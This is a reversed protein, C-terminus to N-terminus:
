GAVCIKPINCMKWKRQGTMIQVPSPQRSIRMKESKEVNIEMGCWRGNETLRETIGRLVREQKALLV